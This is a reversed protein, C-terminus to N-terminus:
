QGAEAGSAESEGEEPSGSLLSSRFRARCCFGRSFGLGGPSRAIHATLEGIPCIVLMRPVLAIAVV